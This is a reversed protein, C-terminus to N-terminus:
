PTYTVPIVLVHAFEGVSATELAIAFSWNGTTATVGQGSADPKIYDGATLGGSGVKLLCNEGMMHVRVQDGVEAAYASAGSQPAAKAGETTIGVVKSDGSTSQAVTQNATTALTVFRAPYISGGAIFPIDNM